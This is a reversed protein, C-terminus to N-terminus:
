YTCAHYAPDRRGQVEILVRNPVCVITRGPKEIWGTNVCIKHPCSSNSIRIRGQKIEVEMSGHELSLNIIRDSKLDIKEILKGNEYVFANRAVAASAGRGFHFFGLVSLVLVALIFVVDYPTVRCLCRNTEMEDRSKNDAKTPPQKM